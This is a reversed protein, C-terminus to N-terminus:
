PLTGSAYITSTSANMGSTANAALPPGNGTNWLQCSWKDGTHVLLGPSILVVITMTAYYYAKGGTTVLPVQAVGSNFSGSAPTIRCALGLAAGQPMTWNSIAVPVNFTIQNAYDTAFAPAPSALAVAAALVLAARRM